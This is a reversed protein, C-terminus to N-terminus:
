GTEPLFSPLSIGQFPQFAGRIQCLHTEVNRAGWRYLQEVLLRKQMPIVILPTMGKYDDLARFILAAAALTAPRVRQANPGEGDMGTEPVTM